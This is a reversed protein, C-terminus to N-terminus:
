FDTGNKLVPLSIRSRRLRGSVHHVSGSAPQVLIAAFLRPSSRHNRDFIRDKGM